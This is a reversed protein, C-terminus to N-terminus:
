VVTFIVTCIMLCLNIGIQVFRVNVAGGAM